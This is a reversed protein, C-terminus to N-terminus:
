LELGGGLATGHIAMVIPKACNEIPQLLEHINPAGPAPGWALDELERIDACSVFTTGAGMIVIARIAGDAEASRIAKELGEPVGTGLANVPPNDIKIVAVGDHSKIVIVQDSM